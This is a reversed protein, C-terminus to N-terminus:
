VFTDTAITMSAVVAARTAAECVQRRWEKMCTLSCPESLMTRPASKLLSHADDNLSRLRMGRASQIASGL